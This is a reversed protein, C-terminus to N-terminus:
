SRTVITSVDLSRLWSKVRDRLSFSFARLKIAKHEVGNIKVTNCLEEFMALHQNPDEHALDHFMHQSLM